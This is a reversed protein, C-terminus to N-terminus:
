LIINSYLQSTQHHDLNYRGYISKILMLYIKCINLISLIESKILMNAYAYQLLLDSHITYLTIYTKPGISM